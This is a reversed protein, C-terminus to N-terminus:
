GEQYDWPWPDNLWQYKGSLASGLQTLTVGQKQYQRIADDYIETYQNYLEVAERDDKHTDLYLGLEVLAFGLMQVEQLPSMQESAENVMGHFPLDLAPFVTGRALAKNAPYVCGKEQQYPVYPNALPACAPLIGGSAHCAAESSGAASPKSQQM